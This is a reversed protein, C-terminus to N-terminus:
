GNEIRRWYLQCSYWYWIRYGRIDVREAGAHPMSELGSWSGRARAKRVWCMMQTESHVNPWRYVVAAICSDLEDRLRTLKKIREDLSARLEASITRWQAATLKANTGYKALAQKIEELPVGTRQAVKIIAILRLVTSPFRRQNGSSRQSSILGKSEYFHITSVPVGSRKAVQGITLAGRSAVEDDNEPEATFKTNM